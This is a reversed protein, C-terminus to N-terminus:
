AAALWYGAALALTYAPFPGEKALCVAMQHPQKLYAYASLLSRTTNFPHVSELVIEVREYGCHQGLEELTDMAQLTTTDVEFVEGYVQFGEGPNNLLWPARDENHLKVVYLPYAMQTRYTGQVRRGTNVAHNPFGTKLTGYVFVHTPM